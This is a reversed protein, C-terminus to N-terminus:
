DDGDKNEKFQKKQKHDKYLHKIMLGAVIVFM